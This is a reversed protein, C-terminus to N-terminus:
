RDLWAKLQNSKERSMLIEERYPPELTLQLKGNFSQTIKQIAHNAVILQRSARFFFQPDLETELEELTQEVPHKQVKNTILYTNKFESVFYAAEAIPIPLLSDRFAV